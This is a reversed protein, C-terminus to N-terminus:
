SNVPAADQAMKELTILDQPLGYSGAHVTQYVTQRQRLSFRDWSSMWPQLLPLLVPLGADLPLTLTPQDLGYVRTLAAILQNVSIAPNGLVLRDPPLGKIIRHVIIRAIDRAHILHLRGEARLWRVVQLWRPLQPL